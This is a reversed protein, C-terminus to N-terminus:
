RCDVRVDSLPMLSAACDVMLWANEFTYVPKFRAVIPMITNAAMAIKPMTKAKKAGDLPLYFFRPFCFCGLGWGGKKQM